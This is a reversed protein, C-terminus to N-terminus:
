RNGHNEPELVLDWFSEVAFDNNDIMAQAESELYESAQKFARSMALCAGIWPDYKGDRQDNPHVKADGWFEVEKGLEIRCITTSPGAFVKVKGM